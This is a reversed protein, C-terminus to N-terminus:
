LCSGTIFCQLGLESVSNAKQHRFETKLKPSNKAPTDFRVASMELSDMQSSQGTAFPSPSSAASEFDFDNEMSKDSFDFTHKSMKSPDITGNFTSLGSGMFGSYNPVDGGTMMDDVKWDGMDTDDAMMTDGPTLVSQSSDSGSAKRKSRSSVSSSDQSSAAPSTLVPASLVPHNNGASDLFSTTSILPHKRIKPSDFVSTYQPSDSTLDDPLFIGPSTPAELPLNADFFEFDLDPDNASGGMASDLIFPSSPPYAAGEAAQM